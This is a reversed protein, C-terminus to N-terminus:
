LIKQLGNQNYDLFEKVREKATQLHRSKIEQEKKRFGYLAYFACFNNEITLCGLFRIEAKRLHFKLEWINEASKVKVMLGLSKVQEIPSSTYRSMQEALAKFLFPDSKKLKKLLDREIRCVGETPEWLEIRWYEM